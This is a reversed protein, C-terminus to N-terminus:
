SIICYTFIAFMKQFNSYLRTFLELSAIQNKSIAILEHCGCNGKPAALALIIVFINVRFLNCTVFSKVSVQEAISVTSFVSNFVLYITSSLPSFSRM